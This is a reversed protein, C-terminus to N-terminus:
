QRIAEVPHLRAARLSPQLGFCIGVIWSLVMGCAFAKWSFLIPFDAILTLFRSSLIGLIFGSLGGITTLIVSESLFQFLIDKKKAGVSRRIGIEVSREKVSLLFLNALVFGAVILSIMGSVGLFLILSGTLAVLFKIIEKPSIIQFDDPAGEPISHRQRLFRKVEQTYFNIRNKDIFRIRVLSVYKKENLFKNMITSIPMILRNDINHGRPTVGREQLIGVIQVPFKKVFIYSGVPDKEGFLEHALYQGILAINKMGKVDKKTIDSGQVVPWSWALSYNSDAGIIFTQYHRNKYTATALGYLSIPVVVYADSFSEEIAKVDDMTITKESAAIAGSEMGGGIVMLSDPGFRNVIEYAKEYAGETAAVIITIAAIGLATSIICFLARLKFALAAKISQIFIRAPRNM